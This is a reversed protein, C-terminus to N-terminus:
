LVLLLLKLKPKLNRRAATATTSRTAAVEQKSAEEESGVIM